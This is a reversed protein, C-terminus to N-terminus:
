FSCNCCVNIGCDGYDYRCPDNLVHARLCPLVHLSYPDVDLVDHQAHGCRACHAHDCRAYHAIVAPVAPVTPMIVM